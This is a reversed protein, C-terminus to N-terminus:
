SVSKNETEQQECSDTKRTDQQILNMLERSNSMWKRLHFNGEALCEKSKKYLSFFEDVNDARTSLDDVYFSNLLNEVFKPDELQYRSTHYRLTGNLLFPSSNVGLTM